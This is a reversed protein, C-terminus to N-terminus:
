DALPKEALKLTEPRPDPRQLDVTHSPSYITKLPTSSELDLNLSLNQIPKASYKESSIPVRFDILGSDLKLLQTYSLHVKKRSNPEIPFIRVKLCDRGEFEP